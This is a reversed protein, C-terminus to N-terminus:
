SSVLSRQEDSVWRGGDPTHAGHLTNTKQKSLTTGTVKFPLTKKNKKGPGERDGDRDTQREGQKLLRTIYSGKREWVDWLEQLWSVAGLHRSTFVSSETKEREQNKKKGKVEEEGRRSGVGWRNPISERRQGKQRRKWQNPEMDRPWNGCILVRPWPLRASVCQRGHGMSGALWHFILKPSAIFQM